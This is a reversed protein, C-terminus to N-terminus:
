NIEVWVDPTDKAKLAAERIKMVEQTEATDFSIKGTEFFVLIDKM